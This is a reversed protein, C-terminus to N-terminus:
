IERLLQKAQYYEQDHNKVVKIAVDRSAAQDTAKFVTGEVGHGLERKFEYNQGLDPAGKVRRPEAKAPPNRPGFSHLHVLSLDRISDKKIM